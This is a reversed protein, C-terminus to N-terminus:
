TRVRLLHHRKSEAQDEPEAESDEAHGQQEHGPGGFGWHGRRQNCRALLLFGGVMHDAWGLGKRTRGDIVLMGAESIGWVYFGDSFKVFGTVGFLM